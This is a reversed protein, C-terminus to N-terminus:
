SICPTVVSQGVTQRRSNPFRYTRHDALFVTSSIPVGKHVPGTQGTNNEARTVLRALKQPGRRKTEPMMHAAETTESSCGTM